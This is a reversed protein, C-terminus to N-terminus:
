IDFMNSFDSMDKGHRIGGAKGFFGKQNFDSTM